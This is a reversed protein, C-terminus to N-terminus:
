RAADTYRSDLYVTYGIVSPIPVNLKGASTTLMEERGLLRGDAPDILLTHRTPLGSTDDVAVAIAERGARDTVRGALALGPTRALYRLVAARVGPPLPMQGYADDVAILREYPGNEAPHGEALQRALTADDASLSRLPWMLPGPPLTEDTYQPPHGPEVWRSVARGSGDAATWSKTTGPVVVSTVQGNGVETWLNWGRTEVFAYRGDGTTDPLRGVRAALRELVGAADGEVPRYTLPPPTAGYATASPHALGLDVTAYALGGATVAATAAAVLVLRRRLRRAPERGTPAARVAIPVEAPDTALIRALDARARRDLAPAAPAAPVPNVAAVAERVADPVLRQLPSSPRTM